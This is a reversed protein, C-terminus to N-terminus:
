HTCLWRRSSLKEEYKFIQNRIKRYFSIKKQYADLIDENKGTTDLIDITNKQINIFYGQAEKATSTGLGKYYKINWGNTDNQSKWEEYEGENYFKLENNGKKAKLIPTNM